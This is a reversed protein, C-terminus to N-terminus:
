DLIVLYESNRWKGLEITTVRLFFPDLKKIGNFIYNFSDQLQM